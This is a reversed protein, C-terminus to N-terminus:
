VSIQSSPFHCHCFPCLERGELSPLSSCVILLIFLYLLHHMLYLHSGCNFIFHQPCLYRPVMNFSINMPPMVSITVNSLSPSSCVPFLIGSLPFLLLLPGPTSDQEVHGLQPTVQVTHTFPFLLHRHPRPPPM